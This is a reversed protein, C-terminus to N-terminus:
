RGARGLLFAKLFKGLAQQLYFAAAEPDSDELMRDVRARDKEAIRLWDRAYTSDGARM